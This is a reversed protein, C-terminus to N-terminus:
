CQILRAHGDGEQQQQQSPDPFARMCVPNSNM